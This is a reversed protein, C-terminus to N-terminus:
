RLLRVGLMVAYPEQPFGEWREARGLLREGRLVVGFGGLDYAGYASLTAWGPANIVGSRDTPRAGEAYAALGFRGRNRAFPM